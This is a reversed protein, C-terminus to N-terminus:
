TYAIALLLYVVRHVGNPLDKASYASVAIVIEGHFFEGGWSILGSVNPAVEALTKMVFVQLVLCPLFGPHPCNFIQM